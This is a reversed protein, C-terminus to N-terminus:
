QKENNAEVVITKSTQNYKYMAKMLKQLKANYHKGETYYLALKAYTM